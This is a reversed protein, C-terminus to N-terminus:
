GAYRSFGPCGLFSNDHLRNFPIGYSGAVAEPALAGRLDCREPLSPLLADIDRYYPVLAVALMEQGTGLGGVLARGGLPGDLLRAPVARPVDVGIMDAHGRDIAEGRIAVEEGQIDCVEDAFARSGLGDLGKRCFM